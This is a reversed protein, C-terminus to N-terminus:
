CMRPLVSRLELRKYLVTLPFLRDHLCGTARSQNCPPSQTSLADLSFIGNYLRQFGPLLKLLNCCDIWSWWCVIQMFHIILFLWYPSLSVFDCLYNGAFRREPCARKGDWSFWQQFGSFLFQVNGYEVDEIWLKHTIRMLSSFNLCLKTWPCM